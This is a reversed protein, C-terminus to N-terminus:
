NLHLAPYVTEVSANEFHQTTRTDKRICVRVKKCLISWGLRSISGIPATRRCLNRSGGLLLVLGPHLRQRNREADRFDRWREGRNGCPSACDWGSSSLKAFSYSFCSRPQRSAEPIQRADATGRSRGSNQNPSVPMVAAEGITTVQFNVLSLRPASGLVLEGRAFEDTESYRVM